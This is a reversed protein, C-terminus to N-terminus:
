LNSIQFLFITGTYSQKDFHQCYTAVNGDFISFIIESKNVCCYSENRWHFLLTIVVPLPFQKLNTTALTFSFHTDFNSKIRM